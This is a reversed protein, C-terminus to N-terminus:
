LRDEKDRVWREIECKRKRLKRKMEIRRRGIEKRQHVIYGRCLEAFTQSLPHIM